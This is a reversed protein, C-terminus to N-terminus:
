EPLWAAMKTRLLYPKEGEETSLCLLVGKMSAASDDEGSHMLDMSNFGESGGVKCVGEKM